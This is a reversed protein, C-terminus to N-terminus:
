TRRGEPRSCYKMYSELIADRSVAGNCKHCTRVTDDNIILQVGDIIPHYLIEGCQCQVKIFSITKM